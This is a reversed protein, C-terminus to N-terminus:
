TLAEQKLEELVENFLVEANDIGVRLILGRMTSKASGANLKTAGDSWTGKSSSQGPAGKPTPTAGAVAEGATKGAAKKMQSKLNYIFSPNIKLGAASALAVIEPTSRDLHQRIFAAKSGPKPSTDAKPKESQPSTKPM